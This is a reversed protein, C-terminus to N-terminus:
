DKCGMQKRLPQRDISAVKKASERRLLNQEERTVAFSGDPQLLWMVYGCVFDLNEFEASYDAAVYLGPQPADTPNNYWTIETVRRSRVAGADKNFGAANRQWEAATSVQKMGPALMNWAQSYRGSDKAAFYAYTAALIAQQDAPTPQWDPAVTGAPPEIRARFGCYVEQELTLPQLSKAGGEVAGTRSYRFTGLSPRRSGCLRRATPMLAAQAAAVSTIGRGSISVRFRSEDIPESAIKPAAQAALLVLLISV